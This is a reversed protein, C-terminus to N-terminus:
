FQGGSQGIVRRRPGYACDTQLQARYESRLQDRRKRAAEQRALWDQM